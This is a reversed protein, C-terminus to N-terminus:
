LHLASIVRLRFGSTQLSWVMALIEFATKAHLVSLHEFAINEGPEDAVGMSQVVTDCSLDPAVIARPSSRNEWDTWDM